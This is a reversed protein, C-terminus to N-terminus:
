IRFLMPIKDIEEAPTIKDYYFVTLIQSSPVYRIINNEVDSFYKFGKNLIEKVIEEGDKTWLDIVGKTQIGDRINNDLVWVRVINVKDIKVIKALTKM